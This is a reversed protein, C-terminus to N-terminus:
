GGLASRFREVVSAGTARADALFSDASRKIDEWSEGAAVSLTKLTRAADRQKSKLVGLQTRADKRLAGIRTRADSAIKHEAKRLGRQIEAISKELDKVGQQIEGYAARAERSLGSMAKSGKKSVTKPM